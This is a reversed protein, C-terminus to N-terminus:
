KKEHSLPSKYNGNTCKSQTDDILIVESKLSNNDEIYIISNTSKNENEKCEHDYINQYHLMTMKEKTIHQNNINDNKRKKNM